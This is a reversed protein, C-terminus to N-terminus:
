CGRCSYRGVCCAGCRNKLGTRVSRAEKAVLGLELPEGSRRTCGTAATEPCERWSKKKGGMEELRLIRWQTVDIIPFSPEAM